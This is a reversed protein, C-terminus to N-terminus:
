RPSRKCGLGPAELRSELAVTSWTAPMTNTAARFIFVREKRGNLLFSAMFMRIARARPTNHPIMVQIIGSPNVQGRVPEPGTRPAAAVAGGAPNPTSFSGFDMASALACPVCFPPPPAVLPTRADNCPAPIRAVCM